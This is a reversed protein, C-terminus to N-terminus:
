AQRGLDISRFCVFTVLCIVGGVIWGAVAPLSVSATAGAGSRWAYALLSLAVLVGLSLVALPALPPSAPTDGATVAISHMPSAVASAADRSSTRRPAPPPTRM